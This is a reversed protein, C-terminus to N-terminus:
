CEAVHLLFYCGTVGKRALETIVGVAVTLLFPSFVSGQNIESISEFEKLWMSDWLDM